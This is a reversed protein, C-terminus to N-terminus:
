LWVVALRIPMYRCIGFAIYLKYLQEQHHVLITRFMYLFYLRIVLIQADQQNMYMNYCLQICTKLHLAKNKDSKLPKLSFGVTVYKQLFTYCLIGGFFFIWGTPTSCSCTSLCSVYPHVSLYYLAFLRTVCHKAFADLFQVIYLCKSIIWYHLHSKCVVPAINTILVTICDIPQSGNWDRFLMSDRVPRWRCPLHYHKEDLTRRCSVPPM